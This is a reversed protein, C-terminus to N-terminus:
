RPLSHPLSSPLVGLADELSAGRERWGRSRCFRYVTMTSVNKGTKKNFRETIEEWTYEGDLEESVEALVTADADGLLHARGTRRLAAASGTQRQRNIIDYLSQPSIRWARALETISPTGARQALRAATALQTREGDTLRRRGREVTARTPRCPSPLAHCSMVGPTKSATM